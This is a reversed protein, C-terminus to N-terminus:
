WSISLSYENYMKWRHSSILRHYTQHFTVLAGDEDMLLQPEHHLGTAASSIQAAVATEIRVPSCLFRDCCVIVSCCDCNPDQRSLLSIVDNLWFIQRSFKRLYVQYHQRKSPHWNRSLEVSHIGIRLQEFIGIAPLWVLWPIEVAICSDKVDVVAPTSVICLAEQRQFQIASSHFTPSVARLDGTCGGYLEYTAVSFFHCPQDHLRDRISCCIPLKTGLGYVLRNKRVSSANKTGM